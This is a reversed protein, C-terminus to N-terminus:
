TKTCLYKLPSPKKSPKGRKISVPIDRHMKFFHRPDLQSIKSNKFREFASQVFNRNVCHKYLGIEPGTKPAELKETFKTEVREFEREPITELFLKVKVNSKADYKLDSIIKEVVAKHDKGNLPLKDRHNFFFAAGKKEYLYEYFRGRFTKSRCNELLSVAADYEKLDCLKSITLQNFPELRKCLDFLRRRDEGLLHEVIEETASQSLDLTEIEILFSPNIVLSAIESPSAEDLAAESFGRDGKEKYISFAIEFLDQNSATKLARVLYVLEKQTLNKVELYKRLFDKAVGVKDSVALIKVVPIVQLASCESFDSKLILTRISSLEKRPDKMKSTAFRFLTSLGEPLEVKTRHPSPTAVPAKSDLANVQVM